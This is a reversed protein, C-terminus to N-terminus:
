AGMVRLRREGWRGLVVLGLTMLFYILGASAYIPLPMFTSASLDRATKTLEIVGVVSILASAHLIQIAENMMAPITLRIAIPAQIRRFRQVPGMGVMDAAELLGQPVSLFGGRLNEAQYAATCLSLALVAAAVSPVNLGLVPLLHYVLLLQVLLPVGRFFSIYLGAAKRPLPARSLAAGCVAVGLAIGIAISVATIALTYQAGQLLLSFLRPTM